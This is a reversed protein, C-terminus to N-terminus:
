LAHFMPRSGGKGLPLDRSGRMIEHLYAIAVKVAQVVNQTKALEAAIAAALTCGTGHTNTTQLKENVIVHYEDRQGDYLVDFVKGSGEAEDLPPSLHGGKVLVFRSGFRALDKAARKMEDVSGIVRDNLQGIHLDCIDVALILMAHCGEHVGGLLCCGVDHPNRVLASAEPINPTIIWALPLLKLILSKLAGDELLRDGSTAVMVPDVVLPLNRTQLLEAVLEITEQDVLMGTKVVDAGIDDLVCTIQDAIEKRPIAHVSLVGQTNQATVATIATCSFVGRNTCTKVDAQIGAGGGSDSGAITLVRRVRTQVHEYDDRQGGGLELSLRLRTSPLRAYQEFDGPAALLKLFAMLEAKSWALFVPASPDCPLFEEFFRLELEMAQNYFSALTEGSAGESSAADNLLTEASEAAAQFELASYNDIWRQFPNTSDSQNGVAVSQAAGIEKGLFAYLRMCPTMAALIEAVGTTPNSATAVLFDVYRTTAPAPTSDGLRSVDIEFSFLGSVKLFATHMKLEGEIGAIAHLLARLIKADKAKTMALAYARAFGLLFTADQLLFAEFAHRALTGTALGTVFPHFLCQYARPQARAWLAAAVDQPPAKPLM